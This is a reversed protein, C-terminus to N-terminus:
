FQLKQKEWAPDKILTYQDAQKNWLFELIRVYDLPLMANLMSSNPM